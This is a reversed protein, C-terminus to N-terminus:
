FPIEDTDAFQDCGFAIVRAPPRLNCLKCLENPEDFNLCNLCTEQLSLDDPMVLDNLVRAVRKAGEKRIVVNTAGYANYGRKRM